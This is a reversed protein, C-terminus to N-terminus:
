LRKGNKYKVIFSEPFGSKRAKETVKRAESLSFYDALLIRTWSKAPIKEIDFRGMNKVTNFQPDYRKYNEVTTIQVKYYIGSHKPADTTVKHGQFYSNIYVENKSSNNDSKSSKNDPIINNVSATSNEEQLALKRQQVAYEKNTSELYIPKGYKKETSFAYTNFNFSGSNFGEKIVEIRFEKDPILSFEYTGNSSILSHLIRKQDNKMKEYLIIQADEIIQNTNKNYINGKVIVEQQPVSFYFIDDQTTTIKKLGFLRNSSFFGSTKSKNKIFYYDDTCSNYPFGLNQPVSWDSSTEQSKFIDFGGITPHGNSSFYLTNDSKDFYPTIEDGTTNVQPGANKPLTFDYENSNVNRTMFWIDMGGVGGKRDSSFFLIETQGKHIVFPHTATTGELKVYDRLKKPNTWTGDNRVTVYIDCASKVHDYQQIECITFYFRKNDPTFTGNSLHGNEIKPFNPQIAKTWYGAKLQSRYIKSQNAMTSSFYFIDDSFPLPSYENAMTNVSESLHELEIEQDTSLNDVMDCGKIENNILQTVAAKDEGNYQKLYATFHTRALEYQKNQKLCQAYQLGANPFNEFDDIVHQFATAAKAYDRFKFYCEGASYVLDTKTSKLKWAEFYNQAAEEYNEAAYLDEASKALKKWNTEQAIINNSFLLISILTLTFKM